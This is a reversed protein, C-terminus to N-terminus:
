DQSRCRPITSITTGAGLAVSTLDGVRMLCERALRVLQINVIPVDSPDAAMNLFSM